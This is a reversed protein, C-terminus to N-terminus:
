WRSEKSFLRSYNSSLIHTLHCILTFALGFLVPPLYIVLWKGFVPSIIGKERCLKRQEPTLQYLKTASSRINASLEADIDRPRGCYIAKVEVGCSLAKLVLPSGDILM